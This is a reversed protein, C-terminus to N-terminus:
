YGAKLAERWVEQGPTPSIAQETVELLRLRGESECEGRRNGLPSVKRRGILLLDRLLQSSSKDSTDGILTYRSLLAVVRDARSDSGERRPTTGGRQGFEFSPAVRYPRASGCQWKTALDDYGLPTPGNNSFLSPPRPPRLPPTATPQLLPSPNIMAPHVADNSLSHLM